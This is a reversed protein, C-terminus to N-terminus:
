NKEDLSIFYKYIPNKLLFISEGPSKNRLWPKYFTFM